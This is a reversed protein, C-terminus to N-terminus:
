MLHGWEHTFTFGSISRSDLSSVFTYANPNVGIGRAQGLIVGGPAGISDGDRVVLGVVDACTEDRINLLSPNEFAGDNATQMRTLTTSFSVEGEDYDGVLFTGVLRVSFDLSTNMIVTNAEMVLRRIETLIAARNTETDDCPCPLNAEFCLAEITYPVLVDIVEGTDAGIISDIKSPLAIEAFPDDPEVEPIEADDVIAADVTGDARTRVVVTSRTKVSFIRAMLFCGKVGPYTSAAFNASGGITMMKDNEMEYGAWFDTYAHTMGYSMKVGPTYELELTELTAVDCEELGMVSVPVVTEQAHMVDGSSTDNGVKVQDWMLSLRLQKLTADVSGVLMNGVLGVLVLITVWRCSCSSVHNKTRLIMMKM